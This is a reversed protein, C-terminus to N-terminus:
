SSSAVTMSSDGAGDMQSLLSEMGVLRTSALGDFVLPIQIEGRHDIYGYDRRFGCSFGNHISSLQFDPRVVFTYRFILSGGLTREMQRPSPAGESCESQSWFSPEIVWRGSHDFSEAM